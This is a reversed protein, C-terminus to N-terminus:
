DPDAPSTSRLLQDPSSVFGETARLLVREAQEPADAPSLLNGRRGLDIDAQGITQLALQAAQQLEFGSHSNLHTGAVLDLLYPGAEGDSLQEAMHIIALAVGPRAAALAPRLMRYLYRRLDPPLLPGHHPRVSQLLRVLSSLVHPRHAPSASEQFNALAGIAEIGARDICEQARMAAADGVRQLTVLVIIGAILAGLVVISAGPHGFRAGIMTATGSFILTSFFVAYSGRYCQVLTSSARELQAQLARDEESLVPPLEYDHDARRKPRLDLTVQENRVAAMSGIWLIPVSLLTLVRIGPDSVLSMVAALVAAYSLTKTLYRRRRRRLM